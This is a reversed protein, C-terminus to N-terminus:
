KCALFTVRCVLAQLATREKPETAMADAIYAKLEDESMAAIVHATYTDRQVM